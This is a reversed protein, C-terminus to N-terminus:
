GPIQDEAHLSSIRPVVVASKWAKASASSATRSFPRTAATVEASLSSAACASCGPKKAETRRTSQASPASRM